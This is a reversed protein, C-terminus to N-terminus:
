NTVTITVELPTGETGEGNAFQYPVVRITHSGIPIRWNEYYDGSQDGAMAYPASNEISRGNIDLPVGDFYFILSGVPEISADVNARINLNRTSLSSFDITDNDRLVRIDQDTDANILTLSVVPSSPLPTATPVRTPLRTSTPRSTSTLTNTFTPFPPRTSTHILTPTPTSVDEDAQAVETQSPLSTLTQIAALQEQRTRELVIASRYNGTLEDARLSLGGTFVLLFTALFLLVFTRTGPVFFLSLDVLLKDWSSNSSNRPRGLFLDFAVLLGTVVGAIVIALLAIVIIVLSLSTIASIM